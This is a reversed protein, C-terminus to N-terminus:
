ANRVKDSSDIVIFFRVPRDTNNLFKHTVNAPYFLTSGERVVFIQEATEVVLEGDSVFLYEEVGNQHGPFSVSQHAPLTNLAFDISRDSLLPSLSRRELGSEPDRFVPQEGPTIIQADHRVPQAHRQVPGAMLGSLSVELAAALKGLVTATPVSVGREIRSIMARSVGSRQSFEDLTLGRDKRLQRLNDPLAGTSPQPESVFPKKLLAIM